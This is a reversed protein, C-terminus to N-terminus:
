ASPGGLRPDIADVAEIIRNNWVIDPWM